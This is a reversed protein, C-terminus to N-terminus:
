PLTARALRRGAADLRSSLRSVRSVLHERRRVHQLRRSRTRLRLQLREDARGQGFRRSGAGAPLQPPSGGAICAAWPEVGGPASRPRSAASSTPSRSGEAPGPVRAAEAFVKHKVPSLNIVGNSIVIDFSGDRLPSRRNEGRRVRGTLVRRSGSSRQRASRDDTFDVGVVRGSPGVHVAGCFADTGSGSGLDLVRDGPSLAALDLHYGVGAFSALAEPPIADLLEGPYGVRLALERGVAFHLEADEGQAVHRYMEQVQEELV